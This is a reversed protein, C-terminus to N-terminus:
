RLLLRTEYIDIDELRDVIRDAIEVSALPGVQVRHVHGGNEIRVSRQLHDELRHRLRHANDENGFAGVQIYIRPNKLIPATPKRRSEPEDKKALRTHGRPDRPNITRIEVLATGKRTMGLKSAAAYSLDIIRNGHFPGRDNVRVVATRGNELNRVEVYSPLPLRKHAASMAYMNYREGNATKNGHFKKGYWSAVGQQRFGDASSLPQYRRGFVTYPRLNARAIPEVRPVADPIHSYDPYGAPGSDRYVPGGGCGALLLTGLVLAVLFIQALHRGTTGTVTALNRQSARNRTM